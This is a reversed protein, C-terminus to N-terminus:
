EEGMSMLHAPFGPTRPEVESAGRRERPHPTSMALNARQRKLEMLTREQIEVIKDLHILRSESRLSGLYQSEIPAGSTNRTSAVEAEVITALTAAADRDANEQGANALHQRCHRGAPGRLHRALNSARTFSQGCGWPGEPSTGRCVYKHEGAHTKEHTKRDHQRVFSRSCITCAFPREDTHNRLHTRLTFARTFRKPCLNCQFSAPHKRAPYTWKKHKPPQTVADAEDVGSGRSPGGDNFDLTIYSESVAPETTSIPPFLPRRTTAEPRDHEPYEWYSAPYSLPTAASLIVDNTGASQRQTECQLQPGRLSSLPLRHDPEAGALVGDWSLWDLGRLAPYQQLIVEPIVADDSNSASAPAWAAADPPRTREPVSRQVKGRRQREASEEGLLPRICVRGADSRFHRSLADARAFRRGCGWQQDSASLRGRCIFKKKEGAHHGEHRKRDHQRAFAKNCITCVFPREDTHLRLHSRLNYARTFRRPCLHCQFAAPHKPIRSGGATQPRDPDALDLM